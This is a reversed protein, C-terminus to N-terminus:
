VCTGTWVEGEPNWTWLERESGDSASFMLHGNVSVFDDPFSGTSGLAVDAMQVTGAATGDSQWLERGAASTYASFYLTGNVAQMYFPYSNNPDGYSDSGTHIDKVLVTGAETGDSKWLERGYVGDSASFFLTDDVVTLGPYYSLNGESGSEIDKVLGTGSSTGDSRWLEEGHTGDDAIFFLVGGVDKLDQPNSSNPAYSYTDYDYSSGSYIDKVLVTGSVTGDSQWLETGNVGDDAAFFLTDGVATLGQPNSSNPVYSSTSSDLKSGAYLDAVLLTGAATGDSKWLETGNVGDGAAFFLTGGVATLHQPNSSNPVYSSTDSDLESGSYIDKVLLTGTATGDSTWLETGNVGDNATFFLKGEVVTLNAPNSSNAVYSYSEDDYSTGSYLDKVLVTGAATGDSKWLETGNSGDNAAFFLTGDVNTLGSPASSDSGSRIDIVCHRGRRPATREGFNRAM